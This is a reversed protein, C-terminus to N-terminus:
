FGGARLPISQATLPPLWNEIPQQFLAGKDEAHRPLLIIDDEPNQVVALPVPMLPSFAEASTAITQCIDSHSLSTPCYATNKKNAYIIEQVSKTVQVMVDPSIKRTYLAALQLAQASLEPNLVVNTKAVAILAVVAADTVAPDKRMLAKATDFDDDAIATQVQQVTTQRLPQQPPPPSYVTLPMAAVQPPPSLDPATVEAYLQANVAAVAPTSAIVAAFASIVHCTDTHSASALCYTANAKNIKSIDQVTRAIQPAVDSNIFKVYDAALQLAQASLAPNGGMDQRAVMVLEAVATSAINPNSKILSQAEAFHRHTIDGQVQELVPAAQAPSCAMFASLVLTLATKRM